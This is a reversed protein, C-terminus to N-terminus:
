AGVEVTFVLVALFDHKFRDDKSTGLSSFLSDLLWGGLLDFKSINGLFPISPITILFLLFDASSSPCFYFM